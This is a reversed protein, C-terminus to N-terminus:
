EYLICFCMFSLSCLIFSVYVPLNLRTEGKSDDLIGLHVKDENGGSAGGPTVHVVLVFVICMKPKEDM